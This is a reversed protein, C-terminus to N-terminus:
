CAQKGLVGKELLQGRNDIIVTMGSVIYDIQVYGAELQNVLQKIHFRSINNEFGSGRIEVGNNALPTNGGMKGGIGKGQQQWFIQYIHIQQNLSQISHHM